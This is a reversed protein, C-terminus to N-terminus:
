GLATYRSLLAELIEKVTETRDKDGDAKQDHGENTWGCTNLRDKLCNHCNPPKRHKEWVSKNNKRSRLWRPGGVPTLCLQPPCLLPSLEGLPGIQMCQGHKLRTLSPSAHMLTQMEPSCCRIVRGMQLIIKMNWRPSSLPSSFFGRHRGKNERLSACLSAVFQLSCLPAMASSPSCHLKPPVQQSSPPWRSM